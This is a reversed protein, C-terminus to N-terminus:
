KRTISLLVQEFGKAMQQPSFHKKVRDRGLRGMRACKDEDAAAGAMVRSWAEAASYDDEGSNGVSSAVGDDSPLLWGTAEHLISETPGGSNTALVPVGCHMAEIPVIGFHEKTPTYLLARASQLLAAKVSESVSKMFVVCNSNDGLLRQAEDQLEAMYEVNERVNTDYGGAVVLVSQRMVEPPLLAFAKIALSINKKREYRNISVFVVRGRLDRVTGPDPAPPPALSVCPYLVKPEKSASKFAALFVSATFNSNVVVADAALTCREEVFDFPIRYLRRLLGGKPALLKDPYHCYFMVKAKMRMFPVYLALQDCVVADVGREFLLLMISLWLGRIFTCMISCKGFITRPLWDGYVKVPLASDGVTEPFAHSPDHHSTYMRVDHGLQRLGCAADVVLREAGGIGM